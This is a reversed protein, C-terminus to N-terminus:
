QNHMHMEPECAVTRRTEESFDRTSLLVGIFAKELMNPRQAGLRDTCLNPRRKGKGCPDRLFRPGERLRARLTGNIDCNCISM